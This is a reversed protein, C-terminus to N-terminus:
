PEEFDLAYVDQTGANRTIMPSDDLGLTLSNNYIGVPVFAELSKVQERKGDKLSVRDISGGKQDTSLMYVYQSDKSCNLWGLNGSAIDKWKQTQMDYVAVRTFDGSLAPIHRGDACWRPSFLGESGPLTTVQRTKVDLIQITSDPLGSAGGFMIKSGDPSYNPDQQNKTAGPLIQRPAGGSVSVEFMHGLKGAPSEFFVITQGDPSWQPMMAYEGDYTLQLRDSGDTRSRWLNGQPFEVYAVWQGDKSFAAFEASIGGLIPLFQRSKADWRMLEGRRTSGVVYLKKGAKDFAHSSLAIPSSTIQVPKPPTRQFLKSPPATWLQGGSEFVYFKGDPTWGGCCEFDPPSTFGPFVRHLNTGDLGVEWVTPPTDGRDQRDFRLSRGDPSFIMNSLVAAGVSAVKRAPAGSRDGVFIDGLNSFVIRNGDSSWNAAQAVYDGLPRPSGGLTAAIWLPAAVASPARRIAILQSADPSLAIGVFDGPLSVTKRPEGGNISMEGMGQSDEFAAIMLLRSGDVAVLSKPRGDRTLQVYNSVRPISSTRNAIWAGLATAAVCALLGLLIPTRLNSRKDPAVHAGTVATMTSDSLEKLAFALDSSSQFRQEPNKELCRSVVRQLGPPTSPVVQSIPRPDENLIAAMIDPSTPKDFTQKGTIMEYLIGGFAFIDSRYDVDQGRVQEPSMYGVTGMVLGPETVRTLTPGVTASQAQGIKALGFDLIKVRGDKTIFLNEPKLDRHVIGKEHPAALGNAIQVGYEIAKRLPIPGHKLRERLTEGDLLETVLYSVGTPDTAFQYVALINPHNLAGAARAEQEFRLLREPDDTVSSPLVKIAVERDLRRDHARYVEGMGGAGLPARIEYAGLITGPALSM